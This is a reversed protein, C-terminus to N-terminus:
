YVRRSPSSALCSRNMDTYKDTQKDTQRDRESQTHTHTHTVSYGAKDLSSHKKILYDYIHVRVPNFLFTDSFVPSLLCCARIFLYYKM